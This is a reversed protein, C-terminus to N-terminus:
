RPVLSPKGDVSANASGSQPAAGAPPKAGSSATGTSTPLSSAFDSSSLSSVLASWLGAATELMERRQSRGLTASVAIFFVLANEVEQVDDQTIVGRDVAAKLPMPSWGKEGPVIVSTTRRMEEVLGIEVGDPGSWTGADSSIKKLLRLAVGPAAAVSLGLNWFQAFTQALVLFYRDVMEASLPTSHVYAIVPTVMVPRGDQIAPAGKADLQVTEDGYIPVVFNLKRDIRM